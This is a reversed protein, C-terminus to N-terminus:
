IVKFAITKTKVLDKRYARFVSSKKVDFIARFWQYLLKILLYHVFSIDSRKLYFLAKISDGARWVITEKM